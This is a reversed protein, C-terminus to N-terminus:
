ITWGQSCRGRARPSIRGPFRSRATYTAVYNAWRCWMCPGRREVGCNGPCLSTGGPRPRTEGNFARRLRKADASRALHNPTQLQSRGRCWGPPDVVIRQAGSTREAAAEGPVRGAHERPHVQRTRSPARLASLKHGEPTMTAKVLDAGACGPLTVDVSRCPVFRFARSPVPRSMVRRFPRCPVAGLCLTRLVVFGAGRYARVTRLVAAFRGLAVDGVRCCWSPPVGWAVGRCCFPLPLGRWARAASSPPRSSKHIRTIPHARPQDPKSPSDGAPARDAERPGHDAIAQRM